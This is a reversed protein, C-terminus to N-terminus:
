SSGGRQDSFTYDAHRVTFDLRDNTPDYQMYWHNIVNRELISPLGTSSRNPEAIRLSVEYARVLPGDIFSLVATERFYASSGGVGRSVVRNGLQEFPIGLSDADDQHIYTADAGTDLLCLIRANVQLLPIRVRCQVVPRRRSDFRGLIM